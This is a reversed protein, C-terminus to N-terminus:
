SVGGAKKTEVVKEKKDKTTSTKREKKVKEPPPNTIFGNNYVLEHTINKYMKTLTQDKIAILVEAESPHINELLQVFLTERRLPTLDQRCFVYLRKLEQKFIAPSMGIPAADPKFPPKGEPLLFKQAPDFAHKFIITMAADDKYNALLEPNENIEKFIEPIYKSM